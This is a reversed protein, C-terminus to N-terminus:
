GRVARRNELLEEACTASTKAQDFLLPATVFDKSIMVPVIPAPL